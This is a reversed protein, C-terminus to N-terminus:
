SPFWISSFLLYIVMISTAIMFIGVCEIINSLCKRQPKYFLAKESVLVLLYFGMIGITMAAGELAFFLLGGWPTLFFSTLTKM